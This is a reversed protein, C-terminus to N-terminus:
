TRKGFGATKRAAPAAVKRDIYRVGARDPSTWMVQVQRRTDSFTDHIVFTKPLWESDPVTLLAGGSSVDTIRCPLSRGSDLEIRAARSVPKREEKRM